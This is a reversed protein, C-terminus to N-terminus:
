YKHAMDPFSKEKAIQAKQALRANIENKKTFINTLLLGTDKDMIVGSGGSFSLGIGGNSANPSAGFGSFNIFVSEDSDPMLTLTTGFTKGKGIVMEKTFAMETYQLSHLTKIDGNVKYEVTKNKNINDKGFFYIKHKPLFNKNSEKITGDIVYTDLLLEYQGDTKKFDIFKFANAGKKKAKDAIFIMSLAIENLKSTAKIRDIYRANSVDTQKDLYIFEKKEKKPLSDNKSIFEVKIQQAFTVNFAMFLVALALFKIRKM